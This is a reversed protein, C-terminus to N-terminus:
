PGLLLLFADMGGYPQLREATPNGGALLPAGGGAGLENYMGAAAIRGCSDVGVAHVNSNERDAIQWSGLFTGSAGPSRKAVFADQGRGSSTLTDGGLELGDADFFGAVIVHDDEDVALDEVQVTRILGAPGEVAETWVEVVNWPDVGPDDIQALFSSWNTARGTISGTPDIAVPVELSGGSFTGATVVDGSPTVAVANVKADGANEYTRHWVARNLTGSLRVVFGQETGTQPDATTPSMHGPLLMEDVFAGGVVVDDTGPYAAIGTVQSSSTTTFPFLEIEAGDAIKLVFGRLNHATDGLQTPDGGAEAILLDGRHRGGVWVVDGRTVALSTVGVEEQAGTGHQIYVPYHEAGGLPLRVVFGHAGGDDASHTTSGPGPPKIDTEFKGAAFLTSGSQAVAVVKQDGTGSFADATTVSAVADALTHHAFFGDSSSGASGSLPLQFGGVHLTGSAFEGAVVLSDTELDLDWAQDDLDGGYSTAWVQSSCGGTAGEGGGGTGGGGTTNAAGGGASGGSGGTGVGTAGGDGTRLTPEDLGLLAQCGGAVVVTGVVLALGARERRPMLTSRRLRLSM